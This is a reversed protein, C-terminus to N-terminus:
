GRAEIAERLRRMYLPTSMGKRSAEFRITRMLADHEGRWNGESALPRPKKATLQKGRTRQRNHGWCLGGVMAPDPCGAFDCPVGRQRM